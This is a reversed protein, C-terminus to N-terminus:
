LGFQVAAAPRLAGLLLVHHGSLMKEWLARDDGTQAWEYMLMVDLKTIQDALLDVDIGPRILDAKAMARLLRAKNSSAHSELVQLSPGTTFAATLAGRLFDPAQVAVQRIVDPFAIFVQPGAYPQALRAWITTTHQNVAQAVLEERRGFSNRLTQVTVQCEEAVRRLTLREHGSEALLRRTAALIEARRARQRLISRHQPVGGGPADPLIPEFPHPILAPELPRM